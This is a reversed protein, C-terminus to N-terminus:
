FKGDQGSRAELMCSPGRRLGNGNEAQMKFEWEKDVGAEPVKFELEVGNFTKAKWLPDGKKRYQLRYTFNPGNQDILDM